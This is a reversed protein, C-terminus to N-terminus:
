IYIHEPQKKNTEDKCTGGTPVLPMEFVPKKKTM